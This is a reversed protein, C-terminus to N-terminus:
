KESFAFVAINPSDEFSDHSGDIYPELHFYLGSVSKVPSLAALAMRTGQSQPEELLLYVPSVYL